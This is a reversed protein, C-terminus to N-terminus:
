VSHLVCDVTELVAEVKDLDFWGDTRVGSEMDIWFDGVLPHLLLFRLKEAVNEPCIGGAYGIKEGHTAPYAEVPGDIGRGGSADLLMSVPGGGRLASLFLRVDGPDKQQIIHHTFEVGASLVVNEVM